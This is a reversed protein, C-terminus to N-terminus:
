RSKKSRHISVKNAFTKGAISHRGKETNYSIRGKQWDLHSEEQPSLQHNDLEGFFAPWLEEATEDEHERSLALNKIIGAICDRSAWRKEAGQKGRKSQIAFVASGNIATTSAM